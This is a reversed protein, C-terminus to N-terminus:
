AYVPPDFPIRWGGLRWCFFRYGKSKQQKEGKNLGGLQKNLGIGTVPFTGEVDQFHHVWIYDDDKGSVIKIWDASPVRVDQGVEYPSLLNIAPSADPSRTEAKAPRTADPTARKDLRALNVKAPEFDPRLDLAKQYALRANEQDNLSERVAGVDNWYAAVRAAEPVRNFMELAREFERKTAFDIAEQLKKLEADGILQNNHIQQYQTQYVTTNGIFIPSSRGVAAIWFLAVIVACSALFAFLYNRM